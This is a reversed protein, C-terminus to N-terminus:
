SFFRISIKHLIKKPSIKRKQFLMFVIFQNYKIKQGHFNCKLFIEITFHLFFGSVINNIILSEKDNIRKEVPLCRNM